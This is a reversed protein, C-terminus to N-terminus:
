CKIATDEHLIDPWLKTDVVLWISQISLEASKIRSKITAHKGSQKYLKTSKDPKREKCIAQSSESRNAM